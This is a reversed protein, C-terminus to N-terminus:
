VSYFGHVIMICGDWIFINVYKYLFMSIIMSGIYHVWNQKGGELEEKLVEMSNSVEAKYHYGKAVVVFVIFNLLSVVALFAYYLDLRSANLDDRIWGGRGKAKTFHAVSSLIFSSLFNGIGLSTSYYSTGLSKMSEPAQDYFFEIKGVEAYADTVGILVFQPLLLFISLAVGNKTADLRYKETVSAIVQWQILIFSNIECM